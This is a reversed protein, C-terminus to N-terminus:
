KARIDLHYDIIGAETNEIDLNYSLDITGGDEVIDFFVFTAKVTMMLTGFSMQYLTDHPVGEEFVMQSQLKGTRTLLVKGPEVRFTTTVGELGTLASEEYSIDWGGNRFEMTGETVLEIVEPEQDAYTQRGRISLVANRKM